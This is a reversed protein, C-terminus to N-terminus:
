TRKLAPVAKIFFILTLLFLNGEEIDFKPDHSVIEYTQNDLAAFAYIVHTCGIGDLMEPRFSM